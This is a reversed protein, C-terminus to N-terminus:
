AIRRQSFLPAIGKSNSLQLFPNICIAIKQILFLGVAVFIYEFPITTIFTRMGGYPLLFPSSLWIGICSFVYLSLLANKRQYLSWIGGISFLIPAFQNFSFLMNLLHIWYANLQNLYLKILVSPSELFSSLVLTFIKKSCERTEVYQCLTPYDKFFLSWDLSGKAMAYLHLIFNAHLINDSSGLLTVLFWPIFSGFVVGLIGFLISQWCLYRKTPNLYIGGWLLLIPLVFFAGARTNLGLTLFFMGFAFVNKSKKIAAQNLVIFAIIGILIGNNESMMTPTLGQSALSWFLMTAFLIAAGLGFIRATIQTMFLTSLAILLSGIAITNQIEYGGLSHKIANIVANIPRRMNWPDLTGSQLLHETGYYYGNSDNYPILGGIITSNTAGSRWSEILPTTFLIFLLISLVINYWSNRHTTSLLEINKNSLVEILVLTFSLLLGFQVAIKWLPLSSITKDPYPLWFLVISFCIIGLIIAVITDFFHQKRIVTDLIFNTNLQRIMKKWDAFLLSIFIFIIILTKVIWDQLSYHLKIEYTRGNTKPNSNDITSFQVHDRWHSYKGGGEESIAQHGSHPVGFEKGDEYLIINSRSDHSVSDGHSDIVHHMFNKLKLDVGYNFGSLSYLNENKILIRTSLFQVCCFNILLTTIILFCLLKAFARIFKYDFLNDPKFSSFQLTKTSQSYQEILM